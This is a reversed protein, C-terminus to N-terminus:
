KQRFHPLTRSIHIRQTTKGKGIVLVYESEIQTERDQKIKKKELTHVQMRINFNFNTLDM